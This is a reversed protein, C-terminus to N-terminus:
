IVASADQAPHQPTPALGLRQFLLPAAASVWLGILTYRLFRLSFSLVDAERPFVKGLLYWLALVGVAGVAYRLVRQLPAGSANWFAGHQHHWWAVGALMGFWTGAVTFALDVNFPDIVNDPVAALANRAWTTPMEWRASAAASLLILGALALASLLAALIKHGLSLTQIWKLLPAEVKLYGWLLAGGLLWGVLVDSVFHMGLYVRSLGILVILAVLVGRAARSKVGTALMGWVAVGNSAHSSPLGFSTEAALGQVGAGLWYPRPTHFAIKAAGSVANSLLLMLAVRVGMASDFCWYLTPMLLLYFEEQGLMSLAQMPTVLWLGLSQLFLNVWIEIEHLGDM